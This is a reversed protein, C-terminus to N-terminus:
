TAIEKKSSIFFHWFFIWITQKIHCIWKLGGTSHCICSCSTYYHNDALSLLLSLTPSNDLRIFDIYNFIQIMGAILEIFLTRWHKSTHPLEPQGSCPYKSRFAVPMWHHSDPLRFGDVFVCIASINASLHVSSGSAVISAQPAPILRLPILTAASIVSTFGSICGAKITSFDM